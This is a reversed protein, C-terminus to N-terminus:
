KGRVGFYYARSLRTTDSGLVILDGSVSKFVTSDGEISKFVSLDGSVSKFVVNDIL